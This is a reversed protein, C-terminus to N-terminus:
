QPSRQYNREGLEYQLIGMQIIAIFGADKMLKMEVEYLREIVGLFM